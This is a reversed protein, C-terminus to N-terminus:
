GLTALTSTAADSRRACAFFAMIYSMVIHMMLVGSLHLAINRLRLSFRDVHFPDFYGGSHQAADQSSRNKKV